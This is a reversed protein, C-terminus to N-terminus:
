LKEYAVVAALADVPTGFLIVERAKAEARAREAYVKSTARRQKVNWKDVKRQAAQVAAPMKEDKDRSSRRRRAERLREELYKRQVPNCKPKAPKTKPSKAILADINDEVREDKSRKM